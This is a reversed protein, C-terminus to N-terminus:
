ISPAAVEIPGTTAAARRCAEAVLVSRVGDELTTCPPIGDVLLAALAQLAERVTPVPDGIALATRSLGHVEHAWHQQHDGVLQGGTAAADILGSRGTTDRCGSVTVLAPSGELELTATFNDETRTTHTSATRCWVRRVECGTLLRVLDFSHVGTHLLIGGAAVAPDDLWALSSPEFRQNVALARLPGLAPLREAVARVVGNWRLTHAMVAPVRAARLRRAIECAIAGTPGLPKEVLLAKGADAVAAAVDLHLTPPVVAVVARVHPDAVLARWDAHFRCGLDRALTEGAVADRRSLAVLRLAPVDRRLHQLYRQGHKGAGIVGVGIRPEVAM